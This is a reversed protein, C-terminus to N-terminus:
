VSHCLREKVKLEVYEKRMTECRQLAQEISVYEPQEYGIYEGSNKVKFVTVGKFALVLREETDVFRIEETARHEYEKRLANEHKERYKKFLNIM